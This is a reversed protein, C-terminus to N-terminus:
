VLDILKLKCITQLTQCIKRQGGGNVALTTRTCFLYLVNNNKRYILKKSFYGWKKILNIEPTKM